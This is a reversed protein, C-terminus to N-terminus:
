AGAVPAPSRWEMLAYVQDRKQERFGLREYLRRAPNFHEVHVSVTRGASEAEAFLARLLAGGVGQGRVEPSLSIDVVRIDIRNRFVYLRGVPEGRRELVAFVADHYHTLYHHRQLSFQWRLFPGAQEPPWGAMEMEAARVSLYLRELFPEDGETEPRLTYGDAALEAPLDPLRRDTQM